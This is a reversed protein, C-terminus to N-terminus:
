DEGRSDKPEVDNCMGADNLYTPVSVGVGPLVNWVRRLVQLHLVLM